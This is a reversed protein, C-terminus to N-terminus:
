EEEGAMHHTPKNGRMEARQWNKNKQAESGITGKQRLM